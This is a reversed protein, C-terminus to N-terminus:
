WHLRTLPVTKSDLLSGSGVGDLAYPSKDALHDRFPNLSTVDGEFYGPNDIGCLFDKTRSDEVVEFAQRRVM